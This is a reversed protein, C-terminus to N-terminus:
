RPDRGRLYGRASNVSFHQQSILYASVNRHYYIVTHWINQTRTMASIQNSVNRYFFHVQMQMNAWTALASSQGIPFALALKDLM